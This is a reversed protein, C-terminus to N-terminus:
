ISVNRILLECVKPFHDSPYLLPNDVTYGKGPFLVIMKKDNEM